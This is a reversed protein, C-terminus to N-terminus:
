EFIIEAEILGPAGSTSQGNYWWVYNGAPITDQQFSTYIQPNVDGDNDEDSNFAKGPPPNGFGWPLRDPDWRINWKTNNGGFGFLNNVRVEIIKVQASTRFLLFGQGSVQPTNNEANISVYFQDRLAIDGVPPNVWATGNFFIVSNEDQVHALFGAKPPTFLWGEADTKMAIEGDHGTWSDGALAPVIWLTGEPAGVGAESTQTQSVCSIHMFSDLHRINRNYFPRNNRGDEIYELLHRVTTATTMLADGVVGGM